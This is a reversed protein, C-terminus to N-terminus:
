IDPFRRPGRPRTTSRLWPSSPALANALAIKLDDLRFPKVLYGAVGEQLTVSPNMDSVGTAIVIGIAPYERRMQDILWVGDHGPMLIDCIAADVPGEALVALASEADPASKVTHGLSTVWATLLKRVGEEDDVVLITAPGRPIPQLRVVNETQEM